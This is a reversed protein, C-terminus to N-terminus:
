AEEDDCPPAGRRLRTGTEQKAREELPDYAADSEESVEQSQEDSSSQLDRFDYSAKTRRFRTSARVGSSSTPPEEAPTDSGADSGSTSMAEDEESEIVRKRKKANGQTQSTRKEATRFPTPFSSRIFNLKEPPTEVDAMDSDEFEAKIRTTPTPKKVAAGTTRVPTGIGAAKKIANM